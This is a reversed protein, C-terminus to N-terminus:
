GRPERPSGACGRARSRRRPRAASYAPACGALSRPGRPPASTPLTRLLMIPRSAAVIRRAVVTPAKPCVTVTRDPSWSPNARSTSSKGAPRGPHLRVREPFPYSSISSAGSRRRSVPSTKRSTPRSRTALTACSPGPPGSAIPRAQSQWAAAKSYRADASTISMRSPGAGVADGEAVTASAPVPGPRENVDAVLADSERGTGPDDTGPATRGNEHSASVPSSRREGSDTVSEPTEPDSVAVSAKGPANARSATATSAM